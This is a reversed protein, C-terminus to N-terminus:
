IRSEIFQQIGSVFQIAMNEISFKNSSILANEQLSKLTEPSALTEYVAKAFCEENAITIIGNVNQELYEIEPGHKTSVCTILPLASTFADLIALGVLGPCLLFESSKLALAKKEGFLPGLYKIYSHTKAFNEVLKRDKGDGVILLIFDPNKQQILMTATLLFEINKEIALSGCYLGIRANKKIGLQKKFNKIKDQTQLALLQSFESTDVSNNLVTIKSKPYGMALIYNAVGQTYAFWWDCQKSLKRKIRERLGDSNGQRNRGHGWYAFHKLGLLRLIILLYNHIHRNAQETIVLDAWLIHTLSKPLYHLKGNLFWHSNEVICYGQNIFVNDGKSLEHAPPSGCVVRLEHGQNELQEGMLEFLPVRYQKLMPQFIVIKM